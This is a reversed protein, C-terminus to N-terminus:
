DQLVTLVSPDLDTGETIFYRTTGWFDKGDVHLYARYDYETNPSLGVVNCIFYGNSNYGNAHIETWNRSNRDKYAIGYECPTSEEIGQVIGALLVSSSTLNSIGETTM